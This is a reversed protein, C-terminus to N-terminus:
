LKDSAGFLPIGKGLFPIVTQIKLERVKMARIWKVSAVEVRIKLLSVRRICSYGNIPSFSCVTVGIVYKIALAVAVRMKHPIVHTTANM